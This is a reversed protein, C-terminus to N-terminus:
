NEIPEQKKKLRQKAKKVADISVGLLDSMSRNSLDLKILSLLRLDNESLKPYIVKQELLFGPYVRDFVAKFKLWREDTMIHTELMDSLSENIKEQHKRDLDIGHSVEMRLQQITSDNQKITNTFEELSDRLVILEQDLINKEFALKLQEKELLTSKIKEKNRSRNVLLIIIVFGLLLLLGFLQYKQQSQIKKMEATKVAQDYRESEWQWYIKQMMDFNTQSTLSDSLALFEHLHILEKAKNGEGNAINAFIKAIDKKYQLFYPKDEVYGQSRFLAEKAEAWQQKEVYIEALAIYARMADLYENFKESYKINQQVLELAKTFNGRSREFDALNGSIIGVWVSDKAETAVKMAHKFYGEAEALQFDRRLYVGIANFMDIRKRSLEDTYPVGLKLYVIAKKHDGIYSYFNAMYGYHLPVLPMTASLVNDRFENARLFYPFAEKVKRYTFYYYGWRINTLMELHQNSKVAVSNLALRFYHDSQPNVDDYAVSFADAMLLYYAFKLEERKERKAFELLPDLIKHIEVTDKGIHTNIQLAEELVAKNSKLKLLHAYPSKGEM